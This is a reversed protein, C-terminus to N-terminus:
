MYSVRTCRCHMIKLELYVVSSWIVSWFRYRGLIFFFLTEYFIIIHILRINLHTFKVENHVRRTRHSIHRIRSVDTLIRHGIRLIRSVSKIMWKWFIWPKMLYICRGNRNKRDSICRYIGILSSDECPVWQVFCNQIIQSKM